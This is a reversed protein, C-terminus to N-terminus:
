PHAPQAPLPKPGRAPGPKTMLPESWNPSSTKSEGTLPTSKPGCKSSQSGPPTKYTGTPTCGAHTFWRRGCLRGGDSSGGCGFEAIQAARVHSIGMGRRPADRAESETLV